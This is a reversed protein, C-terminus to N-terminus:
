QYMYVGACGFGRQTPTCTTDLTDQAIGLPRIADSYFMFNYMDKGWTNPAKLGNVDITVWGCQNTFTGRNHKCDANDLYILVNTGNALILGAGASERYNDNSVNGNLDKTNASFCNGLVTGNNCEKIYNFYKKIQNKFCNHGGNTCGAGLLALDLSGGGDNVMQGYIQSFDAFDKKMATKLEAQNTNQLLTPITLAAVVGIVTLTILIEALTFGQKTQNTQNKM